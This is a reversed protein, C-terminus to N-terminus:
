VLFSWWHGFSDGGFGLQSLRSGVSILSVQQSLLLISGLAIDGPRKIFSGIVGFEKELFSGTYSPHSYEYNARDDADKQRRRADPESPLFQQNYPTFSSVNKNPGLSVNTSSSRVDVQKYPAPDPARMKEVSQDYKARLNSQSPSGFYDRHM